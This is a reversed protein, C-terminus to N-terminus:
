IAPSIRLRIYLAVGAAVTRKVLRNMKRTFPNKSMRAIEDGIQKQLNFMPQMSMDLGGSRNRSLWLRKHESIVLSCLENMEELLRIREDTTLFYKLILYNKVKAGLRIMRIANRFEDKVLETDKMKLAVNNLDKELLDLYAMMKTYQFSKKSEYQTKFKRMQEKGFIEPGLESFFDVTSALIADYMVVDVLGFQYVLFTLTMNPMLFEEFQNYRGLDLVLSGMKEQDDMFVHKDLWNELSIHKSSEANWSLAAGVAYGAYSVPLYQWHGMDGWDTLLMGKTGHKLGSTVANYINMFMNDTQGSITTWSSTGPYVLFDLGAASLIKCKEDFPHEAQQKSKCLGLEFPEDMNANFYESSFNPLMDNMMKGILEISRRDFPALTGKMEFFPLLKYGGPCEALARYEETELWATMHGLSNQNPVLDIFRQRCYQDLERIEEPTVPTGSEEWLERFSPYGFSFGEVYLQFHNIKLESLHDVIHFLTELTPIKNRIIDLMVGRIELDPYDKIEMCPINGCYVINLQKITVLAYYLGPLDSYTVKVSLPTIDLNYGEKPLSEDQVLNFQPRLTSFSAGTNFLRQFYVAVSKRIEPSSIFTPNSPMKFVGTRAEVKQPYPILNLYPITEEEQGTVKKRPDFTAASVSDYVVKTKSEFLKNYYINLGVVGIILLIIISLFTWSLIRLIKIMM